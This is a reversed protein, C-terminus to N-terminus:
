LEARGFRGGEGKQETLRLFPWCAPIALKRRLQRTSTGEAIGDETEHSLSIDTRGLHQRESRAMPESKSQSAPPDPRCPLNTLSQLNRRGFEKPFHVMGQVYMHKIVRATLLGIQSEVRKDFAAVGAYDFGHRPVHRMLDVPKECGHFM